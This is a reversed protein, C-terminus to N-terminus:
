INCHKLLIGLLSNFIHIVITNLKMTDYRTNCIKNITITKVVLYATNKCELLKIIIESSLIITAYTKMM